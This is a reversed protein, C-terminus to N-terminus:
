VSHLFWRKVVEVCGLYLGTAVVVFAYFGVPLPVFGLDSAFPAFPLVLAIAAVSLVSVLLYPHPQSKWPRHATRIVLLVLSQTLLSEVFWGTQFLPESAQMIQLLVAFTLLDFLSSIPGIVLMYNRLSRIEWHRPKRLFSSDVRDMPITLQALDYLFNNLLIQLPLMPLFPLLFAAAAMSFINGFNSSTEMLLYKMVNGFACRGELIGRHLVGLGRQTLILEAAERAVDVATNVSIGVDASHLSPADNIGDGLYGVVHGRHKLALIVRNKQQPSLRAFVVTQEAAHALAQDSMSDLDHGLLTASDDLDVQRCVHRTVLESDGTLIKVQVGDHRLARIAAAADDRLPDSFALFGALTLEREDAPCYAAQNPMARSAVALIRYGEASLKQFTNQVQARDDEDLPQQGGDVDQSICRPLISEPAGKTILLRNAGSQVVVSVMRREFDFPIEDLKQYTLATKDEHRLIATDLPSKIGSEFVSNIVALERPRNCLEGRPNLTRELFMEGRTLTGTKDSCLVDMSGFNQLAALHKVIVHKQAMRVAGRALTVTVIMPLFEPTLGVALAVAFLLSDLPDRHRLASALFVVLVLVFVIQLILASFQRMGRDFETEPPKTTIRQAIQGFVTKSGTTVVQAVALGSVISSGLFVASPEDLQIRTIDGHPESSKEVPLSEGTLAAQQVHLDRSELLHADAPVLDGASLRILDGPVVDRRLIEQWQGDRLATCTLAVQNRLSQAARRSRDTQIFELGASLVVIIVIVLANTQEHLSASVISATLLILVLPNSFQRLFEIIGATSSAAHLENPGVSAIRRKAEETSLGCDTNTWIPDARPPDLSKLM